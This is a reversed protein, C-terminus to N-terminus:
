RFLRQGGLGQGVRWTGSGSVGILHNSMGAFGVGGGEGDGKYRRLAERVHEPLLGGRHENAIPCRREEDKLQHLEAALSNIEVANARHDVVPAGVERAMGHSANLGRLEALRRELGERKGKREEREVRVAVDRARAWEKQVECAKVIIEGAFHKSYINIAVLPNMTVSQSVTQNVIKRLASKAFKTRTYIDYRDQQDKDLAELLRRERAKERNIEDTRRQTEQANLPLADVVDDDEDDDADQDEGEDNGPAGSRASIQSKADMATARLSSSAPQSAEVDEGNLQTSKRPRGRPRKSKSASAVSGSVLSNAMSGTESRASNPTKSTYFGSAAPDPYSSQRLPHPLVKQRKPDPQTTLAHLGISPRKKPNSLSTPSPTPPSSAM